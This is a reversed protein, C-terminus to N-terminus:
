WSECGIGDSDADLGNPDSPGVYVPHGVQYCDIDGGFLPGTGPGAFPSQPVPESVSVSVPVSMSRGGLAGQVRSALEQSPAVVLWEKGVVAYNGAYVEGLVSPFGESLRDTDGFVIVHIPGDKTQCSGADNVPSDTTATVIHVNRCEVGQGGLDGILEQATAYQLSQIWFTSAFFGGILVVVGVLSTKRYAAL